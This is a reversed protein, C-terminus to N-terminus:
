LESVSPQEIIKSSEEITGDSSLFERFHPDFAVIIVFVTMIIGSTIYILPINQNVLDAIIGALGIALPALSAQITSLIGFVRGRMEGPTTIQVITTFNVMIFGNMCGYLFGLGAAAYVNQALGFLAFTASQVIIFLLLVRGRTKAQLRIGGAFIFGVVTGVSVIALIYGYWDVSANLFDEVFFPLLIMMPAAFFVLVASIIVTDRLGPRAFIYRFGDVLDRFFISFQERWNGKKEPIEQPITIFSESISAYFFTLGDVLFLLPAGLLRFLVGGLGQGIFVTVSGSLQALSNAAPLNEKPVIEPISASFAPGFITSVISNLVAVLFLGALLFETQVTNQFLLVALAIVATGRVIDSFILIKKRSYRDAFTGGLPGLIIAPIAAAAFILGMLTASGTTKQIWLLMAISFAQSGLISITQGQWLLFFNKNFLKTPKESQNTM